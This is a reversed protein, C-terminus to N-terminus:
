VHIWFPVEELNTLFFDLVHFGTGYYQLWVVALLSKLNIMSLLDCAPHIPHIQVSFRGTPQAVKRVPMCPTPKTHTEALVDM